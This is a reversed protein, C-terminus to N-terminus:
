FPLDVCKVITSRHMYRAPLDLLTFLNSSRDQDPGIEAITGRGEKRDVAGGKEETRIKMRPMRPLMMAPTTMMVGGIGSAIGGGVVPTSKRRRRPTGTNMTMM